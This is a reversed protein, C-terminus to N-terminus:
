PNQANIRKFYELIARREDASLGRLEEWTPERFKTGARGTANTNDPKFENGGKASTAERKGTDDREEKQLSHGADLLRRFLQQQRAVTTADLRGGELADALAKAEKALQAARDGGAAEGLEDLQQSVQRQERALARATAQMQASMPQGMGPMLGQAQANISGQKKAMEQMQQLMEAFGTASSSTNAKERDRALSAAARNLADAADGMASAAQQAGRSDNTSQMAEGVKQQAEAMSRQSRGSLLSTKQGEQQLKQAANDVGQKVASQESRMQEPKAQGSRADQELKQEQRAMQLMEQVAQDLANTLESKWQNVQSQRADKMADSARQMQASADRANQEMGGSQQGSQQGDQQGSQSRQQQAGQAGAQANQNQSQGSQTQQPKTQGQAGTSDQKASSTQGSDRQASKQQDGSQSPKQQGAAQRMSEEAANAHKRAEETGSAGADAKDKELRDQLKKLEDDFRKSRDALQKAQNKQADSAQKAASDALAKDRDAIEKAEDKLTQMAGELAARKLMEASKELQERLKQQMAQLDKLTQQAQEHSLQQTANDLKQMQALLEPTLADRLMAQAEQLQRALSSDLAGAQKLQQELAAATKQLNKVQDALARQDKAVAKAKEAAEYTMSGQKGSAGSPADQGTNRAGRDRTADSTREQLSKEAQAASRVQSVASDMSARAISRREEMTPIKLLLERSEGRQAWPSNDTAVIKVHLADGPRLGRPALDLVASGDWVTAAADAIRQTAPTQSAGASGQKWSVIEVRAIGHDDSATARLTIRDDGAVITDTAPSVLEVHPASDAVVELEIPLPLDAIPGAVGSALWAYKGSRRPEFHGTFSRDNVRLAITDNMSGLRVDRLATSARGAIDIITGQPVRAPDGVPLGEAPRGLYAPYTARMSVAGVFPRDTVRVIGTDSASRGDTAVITLDGRLPGVDLTAVGSRHDVAVAQTAWAEGPVRQALTVTGRQPAAIRLRLTEGRLVAPPLNEFALRPLLTGQWARVPKLIALLGDSFSPAAFALAAVAVTAVGTAQGAHRRVSRQASPVLRAGGPALQASVDAAARRGLAGSDAVELAGRLAGARLTQEREIAAAVSSRTTRRELQRMTWWIVAVDAALVLLWVLFPVGRPLAMWRAGGLASAGGALLLCTAGVALAIGAMLHMRRLRARERDVLELVTM